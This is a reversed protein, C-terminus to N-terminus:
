DLDVLKNSTLGLEAKSKLSMENVQTVNQTNKSRIDEEEDKADQM